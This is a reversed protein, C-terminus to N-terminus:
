RRVEARHLRQLPPPSPLYFDGDVLRGPRWEMGELLECPSVNTGAALKLITDIRPLALGRELESVNVRNMGILDALAQQSLDARRRSRKLNIGFREGLPSPNRSVLIAGEALQAEL